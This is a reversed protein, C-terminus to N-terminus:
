ALAPCFHIVPLRDAGQVQHSSKQSFPNIRMPQDSPNEGFAYWRSRWNGAPQLRDKKLESVSERPPFDLHENSFLVVLLLQERVAAWKFPLHCHLAMGRDLRMSVVRVAIGTGDDGTATNSRKPLLYVGAPWDDRFSFTRDVLIHAPTNIETLDMLRIVGFSVTGRVDKEPVVDIEASGLERKGWEEMNYLGKEDRQGSEPDYFFKVRLM